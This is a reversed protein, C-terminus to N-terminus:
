NISEAIKELTQFDTLSDIEISYEEDFIVYGINGGLRNNTAKFHKRTFIYLSGNEVFRIDDLSM